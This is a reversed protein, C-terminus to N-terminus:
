ADLDRQQGVGLAYSLHGGLWGGVALAGAGAVALVPGARHHRRRAAWSGAYLAIAACNSGAHALGVRRAPGVTRVFEALGAYAAPVAALLGLGTLLRAADGAPRRAALSAADLMSASLWAGSPALILIPHAPHGIPGGQAIHRVAGQPVARDAIRHLADAAGDPRESHEIAQAASSLWRGTM